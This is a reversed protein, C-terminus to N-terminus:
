DNGGLMWEKGDKWLFIESGLTKGVPASRFTDYDTFFFPYRPKGTLGSLIPEELSTEIRGVFEKVKRRDIDLVFLVTTIRGFHNEIDPLTKRYRTIKSKMVGGHHFNSETCYEFILMTRREEPYRIGGEPVIKFGRFVREPVIEGITMRCRWLRIYIDACAIEHDLSVPLSKNKRPMSYVKTGRHWTVMLRNEKELKPLMVELAKVRKVAGMFYLALLQRTVWRFVRVAELVNNETIMSHRRM